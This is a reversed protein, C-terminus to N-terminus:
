DRWPEQKKYGALQRRVAGAEGPPALQLAREAQKVAEDFDGLEADAAALSRVPKWWGDDTAQCAKEALQKAFAGNRHEDSASTAALWAQDADADATSILNFRDRAKQAAAPDGHQNWFIALTSYNQPIWPDTQIAMELDSQADRGLGLAFARARYAYAKDRPRLHEMAIVKDLREKFKPQPAYGAPLKANVVNMGAVNADIMHDISPELKLAADAQTEALEYYKVAEPSRGKIKYVAIFNYANHRVDFIPPFNPILKEAEDCKKIAALEDHRNLDIRAQALLQLVSNLLPAEEDPQSFREVDVADPDIPLSVAETLHDLKLLEWLCDVRVGYHLSEVRDGESLTRASNHLGVVHGNTLFIPSGSFGGWSEMSHQLCQRYQPPPTTDNLFTSVRAIHGVRFTAGPVQGDKPWGTTDHGPFGLMAVSDYSLGYVEEPTALTMAPPLEEGPALRLVAVDPSRTFVGGNSADTSRVIYDGAIRRVGPHYYAEAVEYTRNQGNVMALMHGSSDHMIDAVHANTALLRNERSIVWATGTGFEADGVLLVSQQLQTVVGKLDVVDGVPPASIFSPPEATTPFRNASLGQGFIPAGVGLLVTATFACRSVLRTM